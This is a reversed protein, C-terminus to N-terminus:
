GREGAEVIIVCAARWARENYLRSHIHPLAKVPLNKSFLRPTDTPAPTPNPPSPVSADGEDQKHGDWGAGLAVCADGGKM